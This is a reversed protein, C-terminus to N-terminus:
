SGSNTEYNTLMQDYFVKPAGSKIIISTLTNGNNDRVSSWLRKQGESEKVVQVLILGNAQINAVYGVGALVEFAGDLVYFSVFQEFYFDGNPEVLVLSSKGGSSARGQVLRPPAPKAKEHCRVALDWLCHLLLAFGLGIPILWKISIETTPSVYFALGSLM